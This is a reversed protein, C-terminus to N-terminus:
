AAAKRLLQRAKAHIGDRIEDISYRCENDILRQERAWLLAEGAMKMCQIAQNADQINGFIRFEWSGYEARFAVANYKQSSEAIAFYEDQWTSAAFRLLQDRSLDHMHDWLYQLMYKQMNVGYQHRVGVISVHVHGSCEANCGLDDRFDHRRHLKDVAKCADHFDLPKDFHLEGGSVSGDHEWSWNEPWDMESDCLDDYLSESPEYDDMLAEVVEDRDLADLDILEQLYLMNIECEVYEKGADEKIENASFEPFLAKFHKFIKTTEDKLLEKIHSMTKSRWTSTLSFKLCTSLMEDLYNDSDAKLAEESPETHQKCQYELEFGYRLDQLTYTTM